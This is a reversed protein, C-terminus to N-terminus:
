SLKTSGNEIEKLLELDLIKYMCSCLNYTLNSTDRGSFGRGFCKKCNSKPKKLLPIHGPRLLKKDYEPYESYTGSFVSFILINKTQM